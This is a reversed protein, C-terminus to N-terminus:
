VVEVKIREAEEKRVSLSYGKLRVEMPDGLPAVRVVEVETGKVVGMDMMRRGISGGGEVRVIRGKEKARLESLIKVAMAKKGRISAQGTM